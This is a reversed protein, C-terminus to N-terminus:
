DGVVMCDAESDGAPNIQGSDEELMLGCVDVAEFDGATVDRFEPVLTDNDWRPDPSGSFFMSSGNDALIIGYTKMAQLIVQADPSFGSIDFDARLRLRLGMPPYEADEIDSAYHRAPWIFARQTEEVTFRIAHNIEGAAVEEYRVLGPFIPLGAADASTWYLPRLLHDNLDYVAGSSADWGNDSPFSYYLEYLMCNEDDVVLVHRDGDGDEGGEILADAPIPMPGDDSEDGYDTYNIEVMEQSADVVTYPIGIPSESDEPWVGSGFDPHMGVDEGITAIYDDSLPHVPLEDVPTNWINDSPFVQCTISASEEQAYVFFAFIFIFVALSYRM